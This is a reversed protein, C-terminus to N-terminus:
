VRIVVQLLGVQYFGCLWIRLDCAIFGCGAVRAWDFRV